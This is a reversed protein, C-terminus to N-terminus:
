WSQGMLGGSTVAERGTRGPSKTRYLQGAATAHPRSSTVARDESGPKWSPTAEGADAGGSRGARCWSAGYGARAPGRPDSCWGGAAGSRRLEEAAGLVGQRMGAPAEEGFPLLLLPSAAPRSHPRPPRPPPATARAPGPAAGSCALGHTGPATGWPSWPLTRAGGGAVWPSPEQPLAEATPGTLLQLNRLIM